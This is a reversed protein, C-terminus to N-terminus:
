TCSTDTLMKTTANIIDEVFDADRMQPKSIYRPMNGVSLLAQNWRGIRADTTGWIEVLQDIFTRNYGLVGEPEVKYFIPLVKLSNIKMCKSIEVLEELCWASSMYNDTFIVLAIRSEQIGLFLNDISKGRILNEDDEFVNIKSRKFGVILLPLFSHRIDEGRFSIFVRHQPVGDPSPVNALMDKVKEVIGRRFIAQNSGTRYTLGMCYSISDLAGRWSLFRKEAEELAKPSEKRAKIREDDELRLLIDKFPSHVELRVHSAEVAFFIPLPDLKKLKRQKEIEVLEDLCSDSEAFNASFIVVAVKSDRILKLLNENIPKGRPADEDTKVKVGKEVLNEKLFSFFNDRVDKGRFSIFVQHELGSGM